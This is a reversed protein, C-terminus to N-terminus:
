VFSPSFSKKSPNKPLHSNEELRIQEEVSAKIDYFYKYFPSQSKITTGCKSENIDRDISIQMEETRVHIENLMKVIEEKDYPQKEISTEIKKISELNSKTQYQNLFAFLALRLYV